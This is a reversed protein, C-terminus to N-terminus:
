GMDKLVAMLEKKIAAEMAEPSLGAYAKINVKLTDAL